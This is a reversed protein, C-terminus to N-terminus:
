VEKPQFPAGHLISSFDVSKNVPAGPMSLGSLDLSPANSVNSNVIPSSIPNPMSLGQLAVPPASVVPPTAITPPASMIPPAPMVPPAQVVPIVPQATSELPQLSESVFSNPPTTVQTLEVKPLDQPIVPELQSSQTYQNLIDVATKQTEPAVTPEVQTSSASDTAVESVIGLAQNALDYEGAAINALVSEILTAEKTASDLVRKYEDEISVQSLDVGYKEKYATIASNSQRELTERMGLNRNRQENTRAVNSNIVAIRQRLEDVNMNTSM